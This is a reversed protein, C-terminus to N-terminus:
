AVLHRAPLLDAEPRRWYARLFGDMCDHPVPVPIRDLPGLESSVTDLTPFHEAPWRELSPVYHTPLL